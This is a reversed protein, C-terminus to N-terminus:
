STTHQADKKFIVVHDAIAAEPLQPNTYGNWCEECMGITGLPFTQGKELDHAVYLAPKGDSECVDTPSAKEWASITPGEFDESYMLVDAHPVRSPNVLKM